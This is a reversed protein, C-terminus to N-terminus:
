EGFVLVALMVVVMGIGTVREKEGWIWLRVKRVGRIM